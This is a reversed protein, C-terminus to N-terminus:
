AFTLIFWSYFPISFIFADFRDLFGGHGPLLSGSDKFNHTRKLMSEVLDGFTGIIVTGSALLLWQFISLDSVFFSLILSLLLTVSLGGISGEWTKGPSIRQFLQRKGFRSGIFYASTDNIWIILLLCIIYKPSYHGGHFAILHLVAIPLGIYIVGLVLYALNHFANKSASFLELIFLYLILSSWGVLNLPTLHPPSIWKLQILGLFIFPTMGVLIGIWRRIHDIKQQNPLVMNFFEYSCLGNILLFLAFFTYGGGFVGVLMSCVFIAGTVVRKELNSLNRKYSIKFSKPSIM